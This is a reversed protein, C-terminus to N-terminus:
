AAASPRASIEQHWRQLNELEPPIGFGTRSAFDVTVLAIIDAV